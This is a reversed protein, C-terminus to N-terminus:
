AGANQIVLKSSLLVMKHCLLRNGDYRAEAYSHLRSVM